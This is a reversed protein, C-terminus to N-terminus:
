ECVTLGDVEADGEVDDVVGDDRGTDADGKGVDDLEATLEGVLPGDPADGGADTVGEVNTGPKPFRGVAENDPEPM